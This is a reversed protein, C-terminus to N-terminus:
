DDILLKRGKNKELRPLRLTLLGEKLSAKAKDADVDFPLIIARSFPGWYLERHVYDDPTIKEPPLRMGKITVLDKSVSIDIDGRKVGAIAAQIILEDDTQFVDVTLHGEQPTRSSKKKASTLEVNYEIGELYDQM